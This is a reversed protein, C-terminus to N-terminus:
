SLVGFKLPCYLFKSLSFSRIYISKRHYSWPDDFLFQLYYVSCCCGDFKHIVYDYHQLYRSWCSFFIHCSSFYNQELFRIYWSTRVCFRSMKNTHLRSIPDTTSFAFQIPKTWACKLEQAYELLFAFLSWACTISYMYYSNAIAIYTWHFITNMEVWNPLILVLCRPRYM